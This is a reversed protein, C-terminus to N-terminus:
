EVSLILIEKGSIRAAVTLNQNVKIVGAGHLVDHFGIFFKQRQFILIFLDPRAMM